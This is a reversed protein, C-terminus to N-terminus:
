IIVVSAPLAIWSQERVGAFTGFLRQWHSRPFAEALQNSTVCDNIAKIKM